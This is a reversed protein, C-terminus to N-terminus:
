IKLKENRGRGGKQTKPVLGMYRNSNKIKRGNVRGRRELQTPREREVRLGEKQIREQPPIGCTGQM